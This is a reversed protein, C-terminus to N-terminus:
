GGISQWINELERWVTSISYLENVRKQANLGCQLAYERDELMKLIADRLQQVNQPEICIGYNFGNEIDLMEPIAGVSTTVIPCACAMSELIVNPFGETYTPLVFVGTSMMEKITQLFDKGGAIELWTHSQEGALKILDAKMQESVDGIMKLKINKIQKCAEILEFVGKTKVVHGAFLLTREERVLGANDRIIDNVKPTLPNALFLINQYGQEILTDYTKKDIVITKNVTKLVKDLLRFEWNKQELIQPIRGFHFHILSKTNHRKIIKITLIDRILSISGSSIFHVVEYHNTKLKKKLRWLFPIYSNLGRLLRILFSSNQCVGKAVIYYQELIIDSDISNYYDLIHGTWRSIGGVAGKDPSCLLIKTKQTKM